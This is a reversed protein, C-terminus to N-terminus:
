NLKLLHYCPRPIMLLVKSFIDAMSLSPGNTCLMFLNPYALRTLLKNIYGPMSIGVHHTQYDWNLTLGCYSTGTWDCTMKYKTQLTALLHDADEKRTYKVGFDDVCLCFEIPQTKHKWMGVTNPIPFYEHPALHAKLQQYALIAAQKLGYMGKTINFHVHGNKDKITHM